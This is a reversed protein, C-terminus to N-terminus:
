LKYFSKFKLIVIEENHEGELVSANVDLRFEGQPLPMPFNNENILFDKIYFKTGKKLPCAQFTVL